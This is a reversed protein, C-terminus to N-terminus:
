AISRGNEDIEYYKLAAPMIKPKIAIKKHKKADSRLRLVLHLTFQKQINYDSILSLFEKIDM